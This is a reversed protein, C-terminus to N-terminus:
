PSSDDGQCIATKADYKDAMNDNREDRLQTAANEFQTYSDSKKDLHCAINFHTLAQNYKKIKFLSQALTLQSRVSKPKIKAALSLYRVAAPYNKQTYYFQGTAYQAFESKKFQRAVDNFVREAATVKGSNYYAQALFIRNDPLSGDAAIARECTEIAQKLFGDNSYLKCQRALLDKQRGFEQIMQRLLTRSEYDLKHKAFIKLLEDYSPRYKPALAITRRLSQVAKVTKGARNYAIGLFYEARFQHPDHVLVQQLMQIESQVDGTKGYALALAMAAIDSIENSYPALLNIAKQYSKKKLLQFALHERAPISLSATEAAFVKPGLALISIILVM